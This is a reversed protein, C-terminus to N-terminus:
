FECLNLERLAALAMAPADRGVKACSACVKGEQEICRCAMKAISELAITMRTNQVRRKMEIEVAQRHPPADSAGHGPQHPKTSPGINEVIVCSDLMPMGTLPDAKVTFAVCKDPALGHDTVLTIGLTLSTPTRHDM